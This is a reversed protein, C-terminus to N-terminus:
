ILSKYIKLEKISVVKEDDFLSSSLNHDIKATMRAADIDPSEILMKHKIKKPKGSSMDTLELVVEFFSLDFQEFVEAPETSYVVQDVNYKAMALVKTTDKKPDENDKILAIVAKEADCFNPSPILYEQKIENYEANEDQGVFQATVKINM